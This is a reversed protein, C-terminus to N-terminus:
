DRITCTFQKRKRKNEEVTNAYTADMTVANNDLCELMDVLCYTLLAM